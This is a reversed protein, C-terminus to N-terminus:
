GELRELQKEETTFTARLYGWSSSLCLLAMVNLVSYLSIGMMLLAYFILCVTTVCIGMVLPGVHFRMCVLAILTLGACMHFLLCYGRDPPLCFSFQMDRDLVGFGAAGDVPVMNIENGMLMSGSKWNLSPLTYELIPANADGSRLLPGAPVHTHGALTLNPNLRLLERDTAMSSPLHVLLLDVQAVFIPSEDAVRVPRWM